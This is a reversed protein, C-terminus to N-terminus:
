FCVIFTSKQEGSPGTSHSKMYNSNAKKRKKEGRRRKRKKEYYYNNNKNAMMVSYGPKEPM